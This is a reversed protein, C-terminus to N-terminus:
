TAPTQTLVIASKPTILAGGVLWELLYTEKNFDIDFKTDKLASDGTPLSLAYDAMNVMISKINKGAANQAVRFQPVEIVEKCRVLSAIESVNKYLRQGMGDKAVLWKGIQAPSVFLSPDGSGMYDSRIQILQDLEDDATANAAINQQITWVGDDFAIPRVRDEKIKYPSNSPRGDSILIARALEQNLQMGMEGQLWQLFNFSSIQYLVDRDLQQRKYMWGPETIRNLVAIQEDVKQAGLTPYGKARQDEVEFDTLDTWLSKIKTFPVKKVSGLVSKVWGQPTNIILPEPNVAKPDDYLDTIDTVGHQICAQQLTAGGRVSEMFDAIYIINDGEGHKIEEENNKFQRAQVAMKKKGGSESHKIEDPETGPQEPTEEAPTEAPTKEAPTEEAPTEAPADEAPPDDSHEVTPKEDNLDAQIAAKEEESMAAYAVAGLYTGVAIQDDNMTAFVAAVDLDESKEEEPAPDGHQIESTVDDNFCIYAEDQVEETYDGHEVQALQIYAGPNAGASVISLDRIVGAVIKGAERRLMNAKISLKGVDGHLVQDKRLIAKDYNPNFTIFAYVGEDRHQLYAKGLVADLYKEYGRAHDDVLPIIEGDMDKFAGHAITEGDGCRIGYRTAFGEFDWKTPKKGKPM